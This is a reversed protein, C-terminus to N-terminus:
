TEFMPVVRKGQIYAVVSDLLTYNKKIEKKMFKERNALVYVIQFYKMWKLQEVLCQDLSMEDKSWEMFKALDSIFVTQKFLLKDVKNNPKKRIPLYFDNFRFTEYVNGEIEFDRMDLFKYYHQNNSSAMRLDTKVGYNPDYVIIGDCRIGPFAILREMTKIEHLAISNHVMMGEPCSHWKLPWARMNLSGISKYHFFYNIGDIREFVMSVHVKKQGVTMECDYINGDKCRVQTEEGKRVTNCLIGDIKPRVLFNQNYSYQLLSKGNAPNVDGSIDDTQVTDLINGMKFKIKPHIMKIFYCDHNIPLGFVYLNMSLSKLFQSGRIFGNAEYDADSIYFDNYIRNKVSTQVMIGEKQAYGLKIQADFSSNTIGIFSYPYTDHLKMLFREIDDIGMGNSLTDYCWIMNPQVLVGFEEDIFTTFDFKTYDVNLLKVRSFLGFDVFQSNFKYIDKDVGYYCLSLNKPLDKKQSRYYNRVRTAFRQCNIGNGCGLDMIVHTVKKTRIHQENIPFIEVLLQDEVVEFDAEIEADEEVPKIEEFDFGENIKEDEEILFINFLQTSVIKKLDVSATTLADNTFGTTKIFRTGDPALLKELMHWIRIFLDYKGFPDPLKNDIMFRYKSIFAPMMPTSFQPNDQGQKVYWTKFNLVDEQFSLFQEPPLRDFTTNPVYDLNQITNTFLKEFALKFQARAM